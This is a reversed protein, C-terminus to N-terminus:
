FNKNLLVCFYNDYELYRIPYISILEAVPRVRSQGTGTRALNVLDLSCTNADELAEKISSAGEAGIDNDELSLEKM